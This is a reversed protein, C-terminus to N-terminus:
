EPPLAPPEHNSLLGPVYNMLGLRSFILDLVASFFLHSSLFLYLLNLYVLFSTFFWCKKKRTTSPNSSLAKCKSPLRKVVQAMGGAWSGVNHNFHFEPVFANFLM